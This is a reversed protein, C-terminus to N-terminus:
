PYHTAYCCNSSCQTCCTTCPKTGSAAEILLDGIADAGVPPLLPNRDRVAGLASGTEEGLWVRRLFARDFEATVM